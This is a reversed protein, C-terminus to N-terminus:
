DSRAFRTFCNERLSLNCALRTYHLVSLLSKFYFIEFFLNHCRTVYGDRKVFFKRPTAHEDYRSFFIIMTLYDLGTEDLMGAGDLSGLDLGARRLDLSCGPRPGPGPRADRGCGPEGPRAWGPSPRPRTWTSAAGLDLMGAFTSGAALNQGSLCAWTSAGALM